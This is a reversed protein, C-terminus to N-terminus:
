LGGASLLVNKRMAVFSLCSGYGVYPLHQVCLKGFFSSCLCEVGLLICSTLCIFPVNGCCMFSCDGFLVFCFVVLTYFSLIFYSKKEMLTEVRSLYDNAQLVLLLFLFTNFDLFDSCSTWVSGVTWVAYVVRAHELNKRTNM